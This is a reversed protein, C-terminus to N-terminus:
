FPLDSGETSDVSQSESSDYVREGEAAPKAAEQKKEPPKAVYMQFDPQNSGPEKRENLFVFIRANGMYGTLYDKKGERKQRWLGTIPVMDGAM